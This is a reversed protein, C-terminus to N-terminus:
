ILSLDRIGAPGLGALAPDESQYTVEYIKGPEFGSEM